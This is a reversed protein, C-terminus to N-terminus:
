ELDVTRLIYGSSGDLYKVDARIRTKGSQLRIHGDSDQGNVSWKVSKVPTFGLSLRLDVEQGVGYDDPLLIVPDM